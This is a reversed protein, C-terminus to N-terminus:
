VHSVTCGRARLAGSHARRFLSSRCPADGCGLTPGMGPARDRREAGHSRRHDRVVGTASSGRRRPLAGRALEWRWACGERDDRARERKRKLGRSVALRPGRQREGQSPLRTGPRTSDPPIFDAKLVCGLDDARLRDEVPGGNAEMWRVLPMISGCRLLPITTAAM